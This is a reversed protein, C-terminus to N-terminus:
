FPDAIQSNATPELNLLCLIPVILCIPDVPNPKLPSIRGTLLGVIAVADAVLLWFNFPLQQKLGSNRLM